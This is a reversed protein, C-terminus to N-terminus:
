DHCTIYFSELVFHIFWSLTLDAQGYLKRTTDLSLFSYLEETCVLHYLLRKRPEALSITSSSVIELSLSSVGVVDLDSFSDNM